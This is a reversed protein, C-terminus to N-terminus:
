ESRRRRRQEDVVAAEQDRPDILETGDDLILRNWWLAPRGSRSPNGVVTIAQGAVLTDSEWGKRSLSERGALEVRWEELQGEDNTVDMLFWAHPSVFAFESVVGQVTLEATGDYTVFSSHHSLVPGTVLLMLAVASIPAYKM